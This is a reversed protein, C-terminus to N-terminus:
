LGRGGFAQTLSSLSIHIGQTGGGSATYSSTAGSGSIGINGGFAEMCRQQEARKMDKLNMVAQLDCVQGEPWMIKFRELLMEEPTAILKLVIEIHSTRANVLKGFMFSPAVRDGEIGIHELQLLLTKVNYTDLLLQQTGVESIKKQKMIVDLYRALMDTALKTCFSRFYVETVIERIKPVMEQLTAQWKYVYPSEEGVSVMTAWALGQMTRFSPELKDLTGSVLAKVALAGLDQFTEVENSLDVQDALEPVITKQIISETFSSM